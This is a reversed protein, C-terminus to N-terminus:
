GLPKVKTAEECALNWLTIKKVVSNQGHIAPELPLECPQNAVFQVSFDIKFNKNQIDTVYFCSCLNANKKNILMFFGLINDM